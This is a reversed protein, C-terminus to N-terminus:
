VRSIDSLKIQRETEPDINFSNLNHTTSRNITKKAVTWIRVYSEHTDYHESDDAM